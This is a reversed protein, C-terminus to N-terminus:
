AVFPHLIDCSVSGATAVSLQHFAFITTVIIAKISQLAVFVNLRRASRGHRTKNIAVGTHAHAPIRTAEAAATSRASAPALSESMSDALTFKSSILDDFQNCVAIALAGNDSLRLRHLCHAQMKAAATAGEPRALAASM